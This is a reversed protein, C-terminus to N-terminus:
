RTKIGPMTPMVGPMTPMTVPTTVFEAIPPGDIKSLADLAAERLTAGQGRALTESSPYGWITVFREHKTTSKGASFYVAKKERILQEILDLPDTM